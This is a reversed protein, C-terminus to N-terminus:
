GDLFGDFMEHRRFIDSRNQAYEALPVPTVGSQRSSMSYIEYEHQLDGDRLDVQKQTRGCRKKTVLPTQSADLQLETSDLHEFFAKAASVSTRSTPQKADEAFDLESTTRQVKSKNSRQRKKFAMGDTQSTTVLFAESHALACPELRMASQKQSSNLADCISGEVVLPSAFTSCKHTAQTTPSSGVKAMKRSPAKGSVVTLKSAEPFFNDRRQTGYSKLRKRAREASWQNQVQKSLPACDEDDNDEDSIPTPSPSAIEFIPRCKVDDWGVLLATPSPTIARKSAVPLGANKVSLISQRKKIFIGCAGGYTKNSRSAVKM